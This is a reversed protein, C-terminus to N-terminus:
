HHRGDSWYRLESLDGTVLTEVDIFHDVGGELMEAEAKAPGIGVITM